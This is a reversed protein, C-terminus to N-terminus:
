QRAFIVDYALGKIVDGILLYTLQVISGPLGSWHIENGVEDSTVVSSDVVSTFKQQRRTTTTATSTIKRKKDKRPKKCDLIAVLPNHLAILDRSERLFSLRSLIRAM